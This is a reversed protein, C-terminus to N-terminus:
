GAFLVSVAPALGRGVRSRLTVGRVLGKVQCPYKKDTVSKQGSKKRNMSFGTYFGRLM